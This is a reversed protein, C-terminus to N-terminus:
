RLEGVIGDSVTGRTTKTVPKSRFNAAADLVTREHPRVQRIAVPEKGRDSCGRPAELRMKDVCPIELREEQEGDPRHPAPAAIACDAGQRQRHETQDHGVCREVEIAAVGTSTGSKKGVDKRELMQDNGPSQHAETPHTETERDRKRTERQVRAEIMSRQEPAFAASRHELRGHDSSGADCFSEYQHPGVVAEIEGEVRGNAIGGAPDHHRAQATIRV